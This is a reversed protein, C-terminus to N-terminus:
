GNSGRWHFIRGHDGRGSRPRGSVAREIEGTGGAVGGPLVACFIQRYIDVVAGAACGAAPDAGPQYPFVERGSVRHTRSKVEDLVALRIEALEPSERSIQPGFPSEFIARGLKEMWETVPM